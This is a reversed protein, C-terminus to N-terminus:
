ADRAEAGPHVGHELRAEAVLAGAMSLRLQSHRADRARLEVDVLEGPHVPRLFKVSQIRVCSLPAAAQEGLRELAEALLLVGPVIPSGPFHGAFAPHDEAFVIQATRSM